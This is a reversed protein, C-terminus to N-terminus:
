ESATEGDQLSVTVKEGTQLNFILYDCAEALEIIRAQADHMTEVAFRWVAAGDAEIKFVDLSKSM